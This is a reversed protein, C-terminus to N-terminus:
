CYVHICYFFFFFIWIKIMMMSVLRGLGLKEVVKEVPTPKEGIERRPGQARESKKRASHEYGYTEIQSMVKSGVMDQVSEDSDDGVQM